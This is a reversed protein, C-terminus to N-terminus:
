SAESRSSDGSRSVRRQVRRIPMALMYKANRPSRFLALATWRLWQLWQRNRFAGGALMTFFRGYIHRERVRVHPPLSPDKFLRGLIENGPEVHIGLDRSRNGPHVRYLVLPEAISELNCYRAAEIALNWDELIVLSEDWGGIEELGLREFVVSSPFAPLNKFMLVDFLADGWPSCPRASQIELKDDVMYVGTQVARVSPNAELFAIQKQLKEPLWLDDADLFAVYTGKAAAVGANRAASAGSNPKTIVQVRPDLIEAGLAGTRDTSGDDVVIVELDQLTQALVSELTAVLTREANYAPVVVSVLPARTM